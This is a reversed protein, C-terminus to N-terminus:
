FTFYSEGYVLEGGLHAGFAVCVLTALIILGRLLMLGKGTHSRQLRGLVLAACLLGASVLMLSRHDEILEATAADVGVHQAANALGSVIAPVFSALTLAILWLPAGRSQKWGGLVAILEYLATLVLWAIPFHILIPHLHGIRRLAASGSATDSAKQPTIEEVSNLSEVASTDQATVAAGGSVDSQARLCGPGAALAFAMLVLLVTLRAPM